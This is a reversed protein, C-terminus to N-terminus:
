IKHFSAVPRRKLRMSYVRVSTCLARVRAGRGVGYVCLLERVPQLHTADKQESLM